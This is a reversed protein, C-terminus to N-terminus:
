GGHVGLWKVIGRGNGFKVGLASLDVVSMNVLSVFGSVTTAVVLSM